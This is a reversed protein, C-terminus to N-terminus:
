SILFEIISPWTKDQQTMPLNKYELEMFLIRNAALRSKFLRLQEQRYQLGVNPDNADNPWCLIIRVRKDKSLLPLIVDQEKIAHIFGTHNHGKANIVQYLFQDPAYDRRLTDHSTYGAHWQQNNHFGIHEDDFLADHCLLGHHSNLLKPFATIPALEMSIVAFYIRKNWKLEGLPNIGTLGMIRRGTELSGFRYLYDQYDSPVVGLDKPPIPITDVSDLQNRLEEAYPSFKRAFFFPASALYDFHGNSYIIPVGYDPSFQFLTLSTTVIEDKPILGAILTQFFLEDPVWTKKFFAIIETDQAAKLIKTISNWRLCWWQSGIHPHLNAPLHREIGLFKQLTISWSFLRPHTRWNLLHYLEHRETQIGQMVWREDKTPFAEIFDLCANQRLFKKLQLPPKIAYDSGSLLYVYDPMLGTEKIAELGKLTAQVISWDGWSVAIREALLVMPEQAYRAQLYNFDDHNAKLDYHLIVINGDNALRDILRALLQPQDHALILYAIRFLTSNLVM